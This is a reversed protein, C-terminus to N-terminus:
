GTQSGAMDRCLALLATMGTTEFKGRRVVTYLRRRLPLGAVALPVLRGAAFADGLALRSVCGLM